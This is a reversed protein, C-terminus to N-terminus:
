SDVCLKDISDIIRQEACYSIGTCVCASNAVSLVESRMLNAAVKPKTEKQQLNFAFLLILEM